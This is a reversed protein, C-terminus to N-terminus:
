VFLDGCMGFGSAREVLVLLGVRNVCILTERGAAEGKHYTASLCTPSQHNVAFELYSM